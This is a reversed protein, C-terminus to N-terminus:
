RRAKPKQRTGLFEQWFKAAESSLYSSLNEMLPDSDVDCLKKLKLGRPNRKSNAIHVRSIGFINM